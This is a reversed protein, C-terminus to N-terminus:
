RVQCCRSRDTPSERDRVAQRAKAGSGARVFARTHRDHGHAHVPRHRDSGKTPYDQARSSLPWAAAAGGLLMVFQRRRM